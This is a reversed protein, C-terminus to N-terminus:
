KFSEMDFNLDQLKMPEDTLFHTSIKDFALKQFVMRVTEPDAEKLREVPTSEETHQLGLEDAIEDEPVFVTTYLTVRASRYHM